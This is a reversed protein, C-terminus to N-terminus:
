AEKCCGHPVELGVYHVSMQFLLDQKYTELFTQELDAHYAAINLGNPVRLPLQIKIQTLKENRPCNKKEEWSSSSNTAILQM